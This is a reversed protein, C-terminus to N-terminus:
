PAISGSAHGEPDADLHNDYFRQLENVDLKSMPGYYDWSVIAFKPQMEKYPLVIVKTYAAKLAGSAVASQLEPDPKLQSMWKRINNFDDTCGAPCNYLVAIYGHELNHVWYEPRIETTYAGPFIPAKGAGLSYHCGSTPPQHE